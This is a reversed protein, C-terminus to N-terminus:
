GIRTDGWRYDDTAIGLMGVARAAVGDCLTEVSQAHGYFFPSAPLIVAGCESLTTLNRLHITNLPTERVVLVLPRREKLMVDAARCILGSSVGGAIRGATGMTCPVIIMGDYGASGSAPAAFMDKNDYETIRSDEPLTQNEYAMVERGNDSVILAIEELEGCAALREAVKRAYIAGSAGTVAMIVRKMKSVNKGKAQLGLSVGNIKVIGRGSNVKKRSSGVSEGVEAEGRM